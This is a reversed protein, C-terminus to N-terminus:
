ILELGHQVEFVFVGDADLIHKVGRIFDAPDDVHALVNNATVIGARGYEKDLKRSFEESFFDGVVEIGLSRAIEATNTAPEVGLVDFGLERMPSLLVGDNSAVEVVFKNEMKGFKQHIEKAYGKFHEVLAPSASSFLAYEEPFLLRPSVVDVLQMHNCERCVHVSLPYFQEENREIEDGSVFADSLPHMGLDLFQHLDGAGCVRCSSRVYYDNEM